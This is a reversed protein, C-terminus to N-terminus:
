NLKSIFENKYLVKKVRDFDVGEVRVYEGVLLFVSLYCMINFFIGVIIGSKLVICDSLILFEM